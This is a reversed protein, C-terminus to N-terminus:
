VLRAIELKLTQEHIKPVPFPRVHYPKAGKKLKIDYPEGTWTGLTGDFLHEYKQLLELLRTQEADTLHTIGRTIEELNAPEYKAELIKQVRASAECLAASEDANLAKHWFFENVNSMFEDLIDPNKMSIMSEDWSMSQQKFDLTIGIIMDYKHPGPSSNVHFKWEIQKNEFFDNL